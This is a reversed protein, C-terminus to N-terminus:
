LTSSLLTSDTSSLFLNIGSGCTLAAFTAVIGLLPNRRGYTFLLASLPIMIVYALDGIISLLICVVVWVFTITIKKSHKTLLTIATKLFGSKEMVGIGILIIILMSLPTFASFNSVTSSFIYKLESLNFLSEVTVLTQDYNGTVTNVTKYTAELGFLSLIGSIIITSVILILFTMIPHLKIKNFKQKM